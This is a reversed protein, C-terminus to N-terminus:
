LTHKSFHFKLFHKLTSLTVCYERSHLAIPLWLSLTIPGSYSCISRKERFPVNEILWCDPEIKREGFVPMFEKGNYIRPITWQCVDGAYLLILIHHLSTQWQFAKGIICEWCRDWNWQSVSDWHIMKHLLRNVAGMIKICIGWCSHLAFDVFQICYQFCIWEGGALSVDVEILWLRDGKQKWLM